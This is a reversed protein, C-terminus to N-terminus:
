LAEGPYNVGPNRTNCGAMAKKVGFALWEEACRVARSIVEDLAKREEPLFDSLVYSKMDSVAEERGVGVRLRAFDAGLYEIISGLGNHGGSSGKERIRIAGLPLATDDSIVLLDEKAELRGMCIDNVAKGSLNMYTYPEFLTVDRGLVRGFGYVGGFANKKLQIGYKESIASVVMFGANHRTSEYQKGPNGLGAIIKM